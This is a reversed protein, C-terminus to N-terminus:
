GVHELQTTVTVGACCEDALYGVLDGMLDCDAFCRISRGERQQTILGVQALRDLHHSFTSKPVGLHQQIEGVTLGDPGAKVLLRYAELRHIHGLEGFCKAADDTIM